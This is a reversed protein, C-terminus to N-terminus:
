VLGSECSSSFLRLMTHIAADRHGAEFGFYLGDLVSAKRMHPPADRYLGQGILPREFIRRLSETLDEFCSSSAPPNPLQRSEPEFILGHKLDISEWPISGWVGEGQEFVPLLVCSRYRIALEL